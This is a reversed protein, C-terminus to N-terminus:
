KFKREGNKAHVNVGAMELYEITKSHWSNSVAEKDLIKLYTADNKLLVAKKLNAVFTEHDTAEAILCSEYKLCEVLDTTVVPKGLAMYEFLKVPSVSETLKYKRFPLIGIDYYHAYNPLDFYSKSGLFHVNNRQALGSEKFSTDHEYGILLLQFGDVDAIKHLLDYDIWKALAGHYGIITQGTKLIPQLDKPASKPAIRWHEIDVGNTSIGMNHKRHTAVEEFLKTATAVVYISENGLTWLHRNIISEPLNGVIEESIEDIYEYVVKFGMEQFQLIEEITTATDISQIRVVKQATKNANFADKIRQNINADLADFVIVNNDVKDYVFLDKDVQLHGGYLALGGLRSAQLSLHQFRQFLPTNWGMPVHFLDIYNSENIILAELESIRNKYLNIKRIKKYHNFSLSFATKFALPISKIVGHRKVGNKFRTLLYSSTCAKRSAWKFYRNEKPIVIAGRIYRLPKTLRWSISSKMLQENLRRHNVENILSLNDAASQDIKLMLSNIHLTHTDYNKNVSHIENAHNQVQANLIDVETELISKKQELNKNENEFAKSREEHIKNSEKLSIIEATKNKSEEVLRVIEQHNKDNIANLHAVEDIFSRTPITQASYWNILSDKDRGSVQSQLDAEFMACNEIETQPIDYGLSSFCLKFFEERTLDNVKENYGFRSNSQVTILLVRFLLWSVSIQGEYSWEQDIVKWNSSDYDSVIINQPIYDILSGCISETLWQPNYETAGTTKSTYVFVLYKKLIDVLEDLEWYDKSIIQSIKQNLSSGYVYEDNVKISNILNDKKVKNEIQPSLRSTLVKIGGDANSIFKTKKCFQTLRSTSFHYALVSTDFITVDSEDMSAVILFSNALDLGLKNKCVVNWTKEQSFFLHNPRQHDKHTNEIAFAAPNFNQFNYGDEFVISNATKYDPFPAFFSQKKFQASQLIEQLENKGFTEADNKTYRGEIGYMVQWKHDEPSGAFYKLGLQNEIAIILKGNPKLLKRVDELMTKTPTESSTFLNAYELVGILTIVDFKKETDFDSFKEALVTVNELDRTRSRAIMARRISGELALVQAGAEGLYRTIAGCGAGIELVSAGNLSNEFPRLINARESGLHYITPWDICHTRLENSLVSLNSAKSIINYINQEISDGDNYNISKYNKNCYVNIEENLEYKETNFLDCM